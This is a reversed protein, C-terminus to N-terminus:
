LGIFPQFLRGVFSHLRIPADTVVLCICDEGEDIVPQHDTVEPGAIEMDGPMYRKSGVHYSGKLILTYESGKHDHIPIETGGRARLLWLNEGNDEKWLKAQYMGPGMLRWKVDDLNKQLYSALPAPTDHQAATSESKMPTQDPLADIKAMVSNFANDALQDTGGDEIMEGGVAEAAQLTSQLDDHYTLHTAVLMAKADTLQGAAYSVIWEEPIHGHKTM